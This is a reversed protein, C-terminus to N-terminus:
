TTKNFRMTAHKLSTTQAQSADGKKKKKKGCFIRGSNCHDNDRQKALENDRQEDYPSTCTVSFM